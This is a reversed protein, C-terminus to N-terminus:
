NGQKKYSIVIEKQAFNSIYGGTVSGKNAFGLDRLKDVVITNLESIIIAIQDIDLTDTIDVNICLKTKVETM